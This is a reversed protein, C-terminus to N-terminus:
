VWIPGSRMADTMPAGFARQQPLGAGMVADGVGWDSSLELSPLRCPAARRKACASVLVTDYMSTAATTNSFLWGDRQAAPMKLGRNMEKKWQRALLLM